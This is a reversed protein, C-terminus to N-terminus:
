RYFARKETASLHETRKNRAASGPKAARSRQVATVGIGLKKRLAAARGPVRAPKRGGSPTSSARRRTAAATRTGRVRNRKHEREVASSYGSSGRIPHIQGDDGLFADLNRRTRKVFRGKSDRPNLLMAQKPGEFMRTQEGGRKDHTRKFKQAAAKTTFNHVEGTRENRAEFGGRHVHIAWTM